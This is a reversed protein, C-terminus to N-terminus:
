KSTHKYCNGGWKLAPTLCKRELVDGEETLHACYRNGGHTKCTRWMSETRKNTCGGFVCEGKGGGHKACLGKRESTTTCGAM